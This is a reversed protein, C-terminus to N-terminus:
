NLKTTLNGHIMQASAEYKWREGHISRYFITIKINPIAKSMKDSAVGKIYLHDVDENQAIVEEAELTKYGGIPFEGLIYNTLKVISDFKQGAYEYSASEIIAPGVGKNTVIVHVTNQSSDKSSSYFNVKTQIHPWSSAHLYKHQYYTQMVSVGLACISVVTAMVAVFTQSSFPKKINM